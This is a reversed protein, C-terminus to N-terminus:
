TKEEYLLNMLSLLRLNGRSLQSNGSQNDPGAPPLHSKRFGVTIIRGYLELSQTWALQRYARPAQLKVGPPLSPISVLNVVMLARLLRKLTIESLSVHIDELGINSM